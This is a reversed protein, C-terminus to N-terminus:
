EAWSQTGWINSVISFGVGSGQVACCMTGNEIAIKSKQIMNAEGPEHVPLLLM